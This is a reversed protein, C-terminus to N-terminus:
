SNFVCVQHVHVHVGRGHSEHAGPARLTAPFGQRRIAVEPHDPSLFQAPPASTGSPPSSDRDGM